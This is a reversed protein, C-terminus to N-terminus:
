AKSMGETLVLEMGWDLVCNWAFRAGDAASDSDAGVFDILGCLRQLEPHGNSGDTPRLLLRRNNPAQAVSGLALALARARPMETAGIQGPEVDWESFILWTGPPKQELQV